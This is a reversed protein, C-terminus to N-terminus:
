EQSSLADWTLDEAIQPGWPHGGEHELLKYLLERQAGLDADPNRLYDHLIPIAREDGLALLGDAASCQGIEPDYDSKGQYSLGDVLIDFADPCKTEGLLSYGWLAVEWEPGGPATLAYILYPCVLDPMSPFLEAVRESPWGDGELLTQSLLRLSLQCPIRAAIELATMVPYDDYELDTDYFLHAVQPMARLGASALRDVAEEVPRDWDAAIIQEMWHDLSRDREEWDRDFQKGQNLVSEVVADSFLQMLFPTAEDPIMEDDLAIEVAAAMTGIGTARCRRSTRHARRKLDDRLKPTLYRYMAYRLIHDYPAIYGGDSDYLSGKEEVLGLLFEAAASVLFDYPDLDLNVDRFEREDILRSSHSVFFFFYDMQEEFDEVGMEAVFEDYGPIIESYDMIRSLRDDPELPPYPLKWNPTSQAQQRGRRSHTRRRKRKKKTM